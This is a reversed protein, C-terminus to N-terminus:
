RGEGAGRCSSKPRAVELPEQAIVLVSWVADTAMPRRTELSNGGTNEVWPAPMQPDAGAVRALRAVRKAGELGRRRVSSSREPRCSTALPAPAHARDTPQATARRSGPASRGANGGR